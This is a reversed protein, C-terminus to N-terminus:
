RRVWGLKRSIQGAQDIVLESFWAVADPSFREGPGTVSIAAFVQGSANRIPAAVCNRWAEYEGVDESFGRKRARDLETRLQEGTTITNPTFARLGLSIIRAVIDDPQYALVAKGLACSHAAASELTVMPNLQGAHPEAREVMVIEYGDFVGIHASLGTKNMLTAVHSAAERQVDMNALVTNGLEFLKLGLRYKERDQDQDIFGIARLSAVIRHVTSRPLGTKEAINLVSLARSERSFCDLVSVMKSYSLLQSVGGSRMEPNSKKQRKLDLVQRDDM